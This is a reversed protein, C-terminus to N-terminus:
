GNIREKVTQPTERPLATLRANIVTGRGPASHIDFRGGVAEVRDRMAALGSGSRPVAARGHGDDSVEIVLHDRELALRLVVTRAGAHKLVNTLAESVLYFASEETETTFRTGELGPQVQLSVPLPLRRACSTVAAVLGQDSLVPPHIGQALDRLEEVARYLDDQVEALAADVDGGHQLRVRALRAKVLLTVLQQQLGDHLRRAIRRRETDQAQVIRARSADLEVAQQQVEGVRLTLEANLHVNHVALVAQQALSRLVHYDEDTMRGGDKLGFEIVGLVEEGYRLPHSGAKGGQRAGARGYVADSVGPARLRVEVWGLGLGSRLESALQPALRALDHANGLTTGFQTLLEFGSPRRGFVWRRALRNLRTRLPQFLATSLVAVLLAFGIPFYQVATLGLTIAMGLYWLSIILWLIGYVVSRRVPIDVGLIRYRFAAYVVVLSTLIYPLAGLVTGIFYLYGEDGQWARFLRSSARALLVLAGACVVTLLKGSSAEAREPPVGTARRSLLCRIVLLVAGCGPLWAEPYYFVVLHTTRPAVGLAPLVVPLALLAWLLRLVVREYSFRYTGDPLLALLRVMLVSAVLATIQTLQTVALLPRVQDAEMLLWRNTYQVTINLSLWAGVLLLRRAVPSSPAHRVAFLGALYCPLVSGLIWPLTYRNQLVFTGVFAAYALCSGGVVAVTRILLGKLIM